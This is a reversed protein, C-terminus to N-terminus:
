SAELEAKRPLARDLIQAALVIPQVNRRRATAGLRWAIEPPLKTLGAGRAEVGRSRPEAHGGRSPSERGDRCNETWWAILADLKEQSPKRLRHLYKSITSDSVDARAALERVTGIPAAEVHRKLITLFDDATQFGAPVRLAAFREAAARTKAKRALATARLKAATRARGGRASAETPVPPAKTKAKTKM